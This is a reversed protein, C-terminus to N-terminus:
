PGASAIAPQNFNSRWRSWVWVCLTGTLTVLLAPFIHM